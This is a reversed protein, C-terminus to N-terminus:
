APGDRCWDGAWRPRRQVHWGGHWRHDAGPEHQGPLVHGGRLCLGGVGASQGHRRHHGFYGRVGGRQHGDRLLDRQGDRHYEPNNRRHEVPLIRGRNRHADGLRGRLLNDRRQRDRQRGAGCRPHAHHHGLYGRLLREGGRCQYRRLHRPASAALDVAGTTADLSLGAPTASFTGAAAGAGLTATLSGTAGACHSGSTLYSFTALPATTISVTQTQSAPCPGGVTYTITYTGAVSASLDLQGTAPDLTLGTPAVSFTGGSAGSVTPAPNAGGACFASAGYTFAASPQPNVTVVTTASTATCGAGSTATVFYSGSATVTISASQAGTSWMYSAGGSATLTVSGGACFTTAGSASIAATPTADITVSTTASVAACGGSAPLSNTVTYTGPQSTAFSIVGTQPDITLGAPTASFAGGSAGAGLTPAASGGSGACFAGGTGGGYSFTALPATTITVTQTQADPCPGGVAYTVTYTGAASTSLDIQGTASDLTLGGPAASFTGGSTGGITPTPTAGSACFTGGSYSFAASAQPNVTVATTASVAACGAASTVTVFYFGSAILTISPTQAGTSWLYSAGGTATLTVSGGVCFTTPGSATISANPAANIVITATANATACGGSAAIDNTVTYTGAASGTLSIIGTQPDIALGAPTASFTGGSAGAGFTPALTGTTGACAAGSGTAGPYSFGALPATTITLTQTQADPCLGGVAYTISYTGPTSAGLDVTGTQPDLTLGTPAASFTGSPTGSVTPTPNQGTLCFTGGAYAFAASAQPNVTVVTTTSTAACGAASTAM